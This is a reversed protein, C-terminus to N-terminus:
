RKFYMILYFLAIGILSQYEKNKIWQSFRFDGLDFKVYGIKPFLAGVNKKYQEFEGPFWKALNSEESTIKPIYVFIFLWLFIGIFAVGAFVSNKNWISVVAGLGALLSGFYLPHRVISYPGSTCLVQSKKLHGSAWNRVFVGAFAVLMGLYFRSSQAPKATIIIFIAFIFGFFIRFSFFIQNKRRPFEDALVVLFERMAKLIVSMKAGTQVGSLRPKHNIGIEKFKFGKSLVQSLIDSNIIAGTTRGKIGELVSKHFGKMSCNIDKIKVGVLIRACWNYITSNLKRIWPDQRDIRYGLVVPYDKLQDVLGKLEKMYFQGDGDVLLVYEGQANEIGTILAAGYGKNKKHHLPKVLKNIKAINDLLYRTEDISGDNVALIEYDTTVDKLVNVAESIVAEVNSEENYFPIVLSVKKDM